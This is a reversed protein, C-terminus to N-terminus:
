FFIKIPIVIRSTLDQNKFLINMVGLASWIFIIPLLPALFRGDWDAYTFMILLSNLGTYIVTILFLNSHIKRYQFIGIGALLYTPLLILAIFINHINSYYMRVDTWLAIFRYLALQICATPQTYVLETIKIISGKSPEVDISTKIPITWGSYGCIVEGKNFSDLLFQYFITTTKNLLFLLGITALLGFGYIYARNQKTLFHKGFLIFFLILLIGGNPRLTTATVAIVFLIIWKKKTDDISYAWVFLLVTSIYLSETLLCVNWQQVPIYLVVPLASLFASLENKLIRCLGKYFLLISILSVSLQLVISPYISHFLLKCLALIAIYGTYWFHYSFEFTGNVWAAAENDFRTTDIAYKIGLTVYVLLNVILWSSTIIFLHKKISSHM